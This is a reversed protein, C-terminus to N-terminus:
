IRALLEAILATQSAITDQLAKTTTEMARITDDKSQITHTHAKTVVDIARALADLVSSTETKYAPKTAKADPTVQGSATSMSALM